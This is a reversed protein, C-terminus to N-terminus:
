REPLAFVTVYSVGLDDQWVAAVRGARISEVRMGPELRFSATLEGTELDVAQWEEPDDRYGNRRFWAREASESQVHCVTSFLPPMTLEHSDPNRRALSTRGALDRVQDEVEDPIPGADPAVDFTRVPRAGRYSIIEGHEGDGLLFAGRGVYSISLTGCIGTVLAGWSGPGRHFVAGSAGSALSEIGGAGDVLLLEQVQDTGSRRAMGSKLVVHEGEGVPVLAAIGSIPPRWLRVFEGDPRFETVTGSHRVLLTSDLWEANTPRTLEGPGRGRRGFMRVFDGNRDFVRVHPPSADIVFVTGDPGLVADAVRTFSEEEPGGLTGITFLIDLSPAQLSLVAGLLIATTGM